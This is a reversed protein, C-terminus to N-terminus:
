QNLLRRLFHRWGSEQVPAPAAEAQAAAQARELALEMLREQACLPEDTRNLKDYCGDGRLLRAKVTDAWMLDLIERLRARVQPSDIPCAVEVRRVTNRTMLDASSIYMKENEGQGFVYIRSHELFRGVISKVTVNDTYGPVGPLLCCIGRVIMRVQVGAQSAQCLKHIIDIDTLSNFKLFIRGRSGLAIQEDMLKLIPGKLSNPAVLLRSYSGELDALAMNSFFAAADAGISASSTVLSVDTYLEATKENYNGTGVQTIYRTQGGDVRTILCIKSHVKYDEFGYIIRCGAEELRESWDINNQEDFRARLEILVTVDKGNEAAACLYEVLKAKRALRYITIRISVVNPDRSAERIMQLFPEMSEYPYSLLIDREMAAAMLSKGPPLMSPRQPSFPPDSLAARREEPLRSGLSYAYELRLPAKRSVFIQESGIHLRGQFYASFHDSIPRTLELRVVALRRRKKLLKEMKRRLDEDGDSPEDDLYIDANRTVCFVTKELVDYMSFVHDAYEYLVTEMLLYRGQDGPLFVVPPLSAPVPLLGLVESKKKALLVGVYLMKGELHPFPHNTDVIQPSLVPEIMTKFYQRLFKHEEPTLDGHSVQWLGQARLGKEVESFIRDRRRYLPAVAAYIKQLQEAPTLGSKNDIPPKNMEALDGLSGVRIMFFEDLNSTFIALFKMRELLPVSEDEAEEMVRANFQLWSLERNQTYAPAKLRGAKGSKEAKESM